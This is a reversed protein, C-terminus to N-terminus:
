DLAAKLFAGARDTAEGAEDVMPGFFAWVHIMGPWEEFSVDVGAERCKQAVRASDDFLSEEEGVQLLIPPLGEMPGFLPSVRPDSADAGGTHTAATMPMTEPRVFVDKPGRTRISDGTHTLDFYGSLCYLASPRQVKDAILSQAMALALNAGASDGGIAIPAAGQDLLWDYAARADILAAPFPNEPALRYDPLLVDHGSSLALRAGLETFSAPSGLIFAGGHLYLLRPRPDAGKVPRVWRAKLTHGQPASFEVDEIEVGEPVPFRAAMAEFNARREELSATAPRGAIMAKLAAVQERSM